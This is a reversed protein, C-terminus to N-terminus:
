IEIIKWEDGDEQILLTSVNVDPYKALVDKKVAMMDDSIKKREEELSGFAAHGGYGACDDHQTLYVNKVGHKEICISIYKMAPDSGKCPGGFSIRDIDNELDNEKIWKEITGQLRYDM